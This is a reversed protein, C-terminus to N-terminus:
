SVLLLAAAVPDDDANKFLIVSYTSVNIILFAGSISELQCIEAMFLNSSFRLCFCADFLDTTSQNGKAEFM